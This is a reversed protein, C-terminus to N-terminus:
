QLNVETTTQADMVILSRDTFEGGVVGTLILLHTVICMRWILNAFELFDSLHGSLHKDLIVHTQHLTM